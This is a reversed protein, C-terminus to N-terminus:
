ASSRFSASRVFADGVREGKRQTEAPTLASVVQNLDHGSDDDSPEYLMEVAAAENEHVLRGLKLGRLDPAPKM